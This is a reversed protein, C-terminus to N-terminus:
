ITVSLLTLKVAFCGVVAIVRPSVLSVCSPILIQLFCSIYITEPAVPCVPETAARVNSSFFQGHPCDDSALFFSFPPFLSVIQCLLFYTHILM